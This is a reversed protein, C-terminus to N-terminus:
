AFNIGDLTTKGVGRTTNGPKGKIEEYCAILFYPDSLIQKIINNYM